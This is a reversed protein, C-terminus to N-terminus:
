NSEDEKEYKAAREKVRKELKKFIEFNGVLIDSAYKKLAIAYENVIRRITKDDYIPPFEKINHIAYFEKHPNPSRIAILDNLYFCNVITKKSIFIPYEPIEGGVLRYILVSIGEDRVDYSIEIATTLNRYIISYSYKYKLIEGEDFFKFNFKKILFDFFKITFNRFEGHRLKLDFETKM